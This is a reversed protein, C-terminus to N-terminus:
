RDNLSKARLNRLLRLFSKKEQTYESPDTPEVFIITRFPIDRLFRLHSKKEAYEAFDAPLNRRLFIGWCLTLAIKFIM